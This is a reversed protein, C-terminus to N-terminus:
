MGVNFTTQEMVGAAHDRMVLDKYNRFDKFNDYNPNISDGIHINM